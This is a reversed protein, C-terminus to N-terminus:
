HDGKKGIWLSRGTLDKEDYTPNLWADAIMARMEGPEFMGLEHIESFYHTSDPNGVLYDMELVSVRERLRSHTIRAIKLDARDVYTAHLTNAKYQSPNLWPELLLIGGSVLHDVMCRLAQVIKETSVLYGIASFLCTIVDFYRPLAFQTMDGQHFLVGPNRQRAEILFEECIDLGEV